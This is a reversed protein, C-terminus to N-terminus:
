IITYACKRLRRLVHRDTRHGISFAGIRRFRKHDVEELLLGLLRKKNDRNQWEECEYIPACWIEKNITAEDFDDFIVDNWPDDQLPIINEVRAISYSIGKVREVGRGIAEVWPKKSQIEARVLPGNLHLSLPSYMLIAAAYSPGKVETVEWHSVLPSESTGSAWDTWVPYDLSAWSWSPARYTSPRAPRWNSPDVAGRTWLLCYPLDAEWMGTWYRGRALGAAELASILGSLAVLKDKGFTLECKSYDGVLVSWAGDDEVFDQRWFRNRRDHFSWLAEPVRIPYTETAATTRCEWVVQPRTFHIMRTALFREQMVWARRLLPQNMFSKSWEIQNEVVVYKAPPAHERPWAVLGVSPAEDASSFLTDNCGKSGTAGINIMARSYIIGMLQSERSWDEVSDQLICLSDIWLYRIGLHWCVEIAESFVRPITNRAIEQQFQELNSSLLRLPQSTGWCHSLTAYSPSSVQIDTILKVPELYTKGIDLLRTPQPSGDFNPRCEPHNELCNQYWELLRTGSNVSTSPEPGSQETLDDKATLTVDSM